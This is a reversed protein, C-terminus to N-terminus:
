GTSFILAPDFGPFQWGHIKDIVEKADNAVRLIIERSGKAIKGPMFIFDDRIKKSFSPHEPNELIAVWRILNHAIQAFCVWAQNPLLKECPFKKLHFNYKGERVFNEANGRKRHHEIVEQLSWGHLNLNTVVAYYEWDGEEKVTDIEFLNEQGHKKAKDKLQSLKMFRRTVVIPIKLTGEAWSPEWYFRAVQAEPLEQGSKQAKELDEKSYIWPRWDLGEKQFQKDWGTTAKHATVTFQIGLEFCKEIVERYCYASDGRFFDRGELRRLRQQRHDKFIEEIFKAAGTGPKTNGPELKIGHCLGLQDFAVHSSLCWQNKYNYWLGEIEDGFHVHSSSDMDVIFETPAKDEGLQYRLQEFIAKAMKNLFINLREIHSEDFDYLFDQITRIAAVDDYFLERLYPDNRVRRLSSINEVGRIHGALLIMAMMYSGVSRHSIREPLCHKFELAFPSQDFIELFIGLGTTATLSVDSPIIKIKKLHRETKRRLQRSITKDIIDKM